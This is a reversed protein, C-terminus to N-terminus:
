VNFHHYPVMEDLIPFRAKLVGYAHEIVNRLKAHAHNFKKEKTMARWRCFDGLWYRVGRYPVMFERTNTYAADCLYYKISSPLFPFNKSPEVMIEILVRSDYAVGEWGVYIFTFIMNFDCIELVNQ